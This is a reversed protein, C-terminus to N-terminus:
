YSVRHETSFALGLKTGAGQIYNGPMCHGRGFEDDDPSAISAMLVLPPALLVMVPALVIAEKLRQHGGRKLRNAPVMEPVSFRSGPTTTMVIETGAISGDPFTVSKLDWKVESGCKGRKVRIVKAAFVTGQPLLSVGGVVLPRMLVLPIADGKQAQAWDLSKTFELYLVQGRPILLSGSDAPPQVQGQPQAEAAALFVTLFLCALLIGAFPRSGGTFHRVGSAYLL